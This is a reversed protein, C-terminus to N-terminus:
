ESEQLFRVGLTPGVRPHPLGLKIDVSLVAAGGNLRLCAPQFVNAMEGENEGYFAYCLPSPYPTLAM